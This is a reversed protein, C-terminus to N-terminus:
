IMSRQVNAEETVFARVEKGLSRVLSGRRGGVTMRKMVAFVGVAVSKLANRQPPNSIIPFCTDFTLGVLGTSDTLFTGNSPSDAVYPWGGALAGCWHLCALLRVKLARM